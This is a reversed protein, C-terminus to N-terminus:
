FSLDTKCTPCTIMKLEYTECDFYYSEEGGCDCTIQVVIDGKSADMNM